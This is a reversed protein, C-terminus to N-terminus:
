REREDHDRLQREEIKLEIQRLRPIYQQSTESRNAEESHSARDTTDSIQSADRVSKASENASTEGEDREVMRFALVRQERLDEKLQNVHEWAKASDQGASDDMGLKADASGLKSEFERLGSAYLDLMKSDGIAHEPIPVGASGAQRSAELKEFHAIREALDRDSAAAERVHPNSEKVVLVAAKSLNWDLVARRDELATASLGAEKVEGLADRASEIAGLAQQAKDLSQQQEATPQLREMTAKLGRDREAADLIFQNGEIGLHAARELADALSQREDEVNIHESPDEDHATYGRRAAFGPDRVLRINDRHYKIEDLAFTAQEREGDIIAEKVEVDHAAYARIHTNGGLALHVAKHIASDRDAEPWDAGIAEREGEEILRRATQLDDIVRRAQADQIADRLHPWHEADAQLMQNGSVGLEGAIRFAGAMERELQQTDRGDNRAFQLEQAVDGIRSIVAHAVAADDRGFRAAEEADVMYYAPALGFRGAERVQESVPEVERSVESRENSQADAFGARAERETMELYERRITIVDRAAAAVEEFSARESEDLSQEVSSLAAEVRKEYADLEPRTMRQM